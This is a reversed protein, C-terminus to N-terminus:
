LPYLLDLQISRTDSFIPAPHVTAHRHRLWASMMATFSPERVDGVPDSAEM